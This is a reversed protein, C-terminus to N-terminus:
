RQHVFPVFDCHNVSVLFCAVTANTETVVANDRHAHVNLAFGDSDVPPIFVPLYRDWTVHLTGLNNLM